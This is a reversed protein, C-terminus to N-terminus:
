HLHRDLFPAVEDLLCSCNCISYCSNKENIWAKVLFVFLEFEECTYYILCVSSIARLYEKEYDQKKYELRVISGNEVVNTSQSIGETMHQPGYSRLYIM